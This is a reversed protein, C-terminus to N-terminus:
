SLVSSLMLKFIEVGTRSYPTADENFKEHASSM